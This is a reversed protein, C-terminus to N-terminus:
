KKSTTNNVASGEFVLREDDIDLLESLEYVNEYGYGVLNIYTPINLALEISKLSFYYSDGFFNNNCYILIRTSEDPILNMLRYSSFDSFNLHVAGRIHKARYMSESRTDLIITKHEKAMSLFTDLTVLKARRMGDVQSVLEAYKLYDIKAPRFLTDGETSDSVINQQVVNSLHFQDNFQNVCGFLFM